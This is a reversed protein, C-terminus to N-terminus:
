FIKFQGVYYKQLHRTREEQQASVLQGNLCVLLDLVKSDLSAVPFDRM